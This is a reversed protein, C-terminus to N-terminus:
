CSIYISWVEPERNRFHLYYNFGVFSNLIKMSPVIDSVYQVSMIRVLLLFVFCINIEM